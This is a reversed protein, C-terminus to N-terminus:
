DKEQYIIGDSDDYDRMFPQQKGLEYGKIYIMRLLKIDNYDLSDGNCTVEAVADDFNRDLFCQEDM